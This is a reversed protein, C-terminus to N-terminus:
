DEVRRRILFNVVILLLMLTVMIYALASGYGFRLFEFSQRYTWLNMVMTGYSPGGKTLAWIEAFVKTVWITLLTIVTLMVLRINPLTIHFFSQVSNAGDVQASEYVETPITQLGALLMLSMFPILRWTTASIVAFLALGPEGLWLLDHDILGLTRLLGNMTGIDAHYVLGWTTGNVIPPVAWPILILARLFGRGKFVQNLVLAVIMSFSMGLIVVILLYLGTNKMSKLWVPDRFARVYNKLSLQRLNEPEFVKIIHPDM